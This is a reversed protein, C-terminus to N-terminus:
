PLLLPGRKQLVQGVRVFLDAVVLLESELYFLYEAACQAKLLEPLAIRDHGILENFTNALVASSKRSLWEAQDVVCSKRQLCHAIGQDPERVLLYIFVSPCTRHEVSGSGM